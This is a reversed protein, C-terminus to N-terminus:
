LCVCMQVCLQLGRDGLEAVARDAAGGGGREVGRVVAVAGGGGGGVLGLGLAGGKILKRAVQQALVPELKGVARTHVGALAM